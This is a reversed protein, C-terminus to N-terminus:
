DNPRRPQLDTFPFRHAHEGRGRWVHEDGEILYLVLGAVPEGLPLNRITINPTIEFVIQTPSESGFGPSVYTSYGFFRLGISISDLSYSATWNRQCTVKAKRALALIPLV